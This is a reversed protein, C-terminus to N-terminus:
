NWLSISWVHFSFINEWWIDVFLRQGSESHISRPSLKGNTTHIGRYVLTSRNLTREFNCGKSKETENMLCYVFFRNKCIGYWFDSKSWGRFRYIEALAKWQHYQYRQVVLITGNQTAEFNCIEHMVHLCTICAHWAHMCAHGAHMDHMCTMCAHLAHMDHRCSMCAHWAHMDHMCAMCANWPHMDHMCTMCAHCAHMRTMCAHWAHMAHLWVFAPRTSWFLTRTSWLTPEPRGSRREARGSRRDPGGSHGSTPSDSVM